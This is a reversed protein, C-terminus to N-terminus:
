AITVIYTDDSGANLAGLAYSTYNEGNIVRVNETRVFLSTVDQNFVTGRITSLDEATPVLIIFFDGQSAVGTEVTIQQGSQLIEDQDLTGLVVTDPNNSPSRGSYLFEHAETARATYESFIVTGHVSLGEIRWTVSQGSTLTVTTVAQTLSTSTPSIASNLVAGNQRLTLNGQVQNPNTLFWGFIDNGTIVTGAPVSAMVSANVLGTLEPELVGGFPGVASIGCGDPVTIVGTLPTSDGINLRIGYVDGVQSQVYLTAQASGHEDGGQTGAAQAASRAYMEYSRKGELTTTGGRTRIYQVTPNVRGTTGGGTANADLSTISDLRYFGARNIQVGGLVPTFIAVDTNIDATTSWTIDITETGGTELDVNQIGSVDMTVFHQDSESTPTPPSAWSKVGNTESTLFLGTSPPLPLRAEAGVEDATTSHPNNTNNVHNDLNTQVGAATGVPDAGVQVASVAHPNATNNAHTNLNTQVSSASGSPDAGVQAASVSHPNASSAIHGDTLADLADVAGQVNTSGLGASADNFDVQNADYDSTAASVAGTRGFVSDVAGGGGGTGGVRRHATGDFLVLDNVEWTSVGDLTTSGATTVIYYHGTVGMGSTLNPTNTDADWGGQFDSGTSGSVAVVGIQENIVQQICAYIGRLRVIDTIRSLQGYTYPIGETNLESIVNTHILPVDTELRSLENLILAIVNDERGQTNEAIDRSM